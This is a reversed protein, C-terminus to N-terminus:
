VLAQEQAQQCSGRRAQEQVQVRRKRRRPLWRHLWLARRLWVCVTLCLLSCLVSRVKKKTGVLPVIGITAGKKFMHSCFILNM